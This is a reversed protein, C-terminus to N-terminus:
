RTEAGFRYFANTAGSLDHLEIASPTMNIGLPANTTTVGTPGDYRYIEAFPDDILDLSRYVVWATDNTADPNLGFMVGAPGGAGIFALNASNTADPALCDTGLAYEVGFPNGDGDWDANWYRAIDSAGQFEAAGIDVTGNVVRTFGRQDTSFATAGGADLVPSGPLPPM